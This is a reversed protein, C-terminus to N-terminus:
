RVDHWEQSDSVKVKRVIRIEKCARHRGWAAELVVVKYTSNWTHTEGKGLELKMRLQEATMAEAVSWTNGGTSGETPSGLLPKDVCKDGKKTKGMAKLISLNLDELAALVNEYEGLHQSFYECLEETDLNNTNHTDITHFLEHLEEGSLVGDAFYAKFEEFSLKGDDNKDARRLIDLFISMGKSLQLASSLEESSNTSSPSTERSDEM